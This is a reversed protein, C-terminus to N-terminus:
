GERRSRRAALEAELVELRAELDGTEILSRQVQCLYGLLKLRTTSDVMQWAREIAAGMVAILGAGTRPDAGGPMPAENTFSERRAGGRRRAATREAALDPSHTFCYLSGSIAYGRCAQGTRTRAKCRAM